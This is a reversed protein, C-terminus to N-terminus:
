SHSRQRLKHEIIQQKRSVQIAKGVENVSVHELKVSGPENEFALSVELERERATKLFKELEGKCWIKDFQVDETSQQAQDAVGVRVSEDVVRVPEVRLKDGNGLEFRVAHDPWDKHAAFLVGNKAFATEEIDSVCYGIDELVDRIEAAVMSQRLQSAEREAQAAKVQTGLRAAEFAEEALRIDHAVSDQLRALAVQADGDEEAELVQDLAVLSSSSLEGGTSWATQNQAASVIERARAILTKLGAHAQVAKLSPSLFDLAAIVDRTSRVARTEFKLMHQVTHLTASSAAQNRRWDSLAEDLSRQYQRVQATITATAIRVAAENSLDPEAIEPLDPLELGDYQERLSSRQGLVTEFTARVRNYAALENQRNQEAAEANKRAQAADRERRRQERRQLDQRRREDHAAMKQKKSAQKELKELERADSEERQKRQAVLLAANNITVSGCKPGSM